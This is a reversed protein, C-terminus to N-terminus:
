GNFQRCLKSWIASDIHSKYPMYFAVRDLLGDFREMLKDAINDYTGSV